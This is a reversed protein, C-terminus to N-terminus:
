NKTIQHYKELATEWQGSQSLTIAENAEPGQWQMNFAVAQRYAEVAAPVNGTAQHAEALALFGNVWGPFIDVAIQYPELAAQPQGAAMFTDGLALLAAARATRPDPDLVGQQQAEAAWPYAADVAQSALSIAGQTLPQAEYIPLTPESIVVGPFSVNRMAASEEPAFRNVAWVQGGHARLEETRREINTVMAAPTLLQAQGRYYYDIFRGEDWLPGILIIDVPGTHQDLYAAADRWDPKVQDFVHLAALFSLTSVIWILYTPVGSLRLPISRPALLRSIEILGYAVVMLYIPLVFAYRFQLARPDGLVIPLAAPIILWAAAFGALPGDHRALFFLGVGFLVLFIWAVPGATPGLAQVVGTVFDLPNGVGGEIAGVAARRRLIGFLVPWWPLYLLFAIIVSASFGIIRPRISFQSNLISFLLYVAQATLILFGFYMTYINAATALGFVLWRLWRRPQQMARFFLWTALASFFMFLAHMRAEQGYKIVIPAVALLLMATIAFTTPHNSPQITPHNSLKNTQQSTPLSTPSKQNKIKAKAEAKAKKEVVLALRYTVVVTLVVALVSPFRWLWDTVQSPNSDSGLPITIQTFAGAVLYYLPPHIDGATTEILQAFPKTAFDATLIEDGWFSDAALGHLNLAFAIAVLLLPITAINSKTRSM